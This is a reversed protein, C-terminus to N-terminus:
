NEWICHFGDDYYFAPIPIGVGVTFGIIKDNTYILPIDTYISYTFVVFKANLRLRIRDFANININYTPEASFELGGYGAVNWAVWPYISILNNNSGNFIFKYSTGIGFFIYYDNDPIYGFSNAVFSIGLSNHTSSVNGGYEFCIEQSYIKFNLVLSFMAIIVLRIKSTM